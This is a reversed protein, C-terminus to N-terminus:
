HYFGDSGMVTGNDNLILVQNGGGQLFDLEFGHFGYDLLVGGQVTQSAHLGDDNLVLGDVYLNSGDDSNLSFDHFGSDALVLNGQCKVVFWTQYTPQLYVPLVNFGATVSAEPQNFQGTFGFSTVYTLSAGVIDPTNQPVTYLYCALGPVLPEQGLLARYANQSAVLQQVATLPPPTPAPTQSVFTGFNDACGALGLMLTIWLLKKM